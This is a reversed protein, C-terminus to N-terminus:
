DRRSLKRMAQAMLAPNMVQPATKAITSGARIGMGQVFPSSAAAYAAALPLHLLALGAEIGIKPIVYKSPFPKRFGENTAKAAMAKSYSDIAGGAKPFQTKRAENVANRIAKSVRDFQSNKYVDGKKLAKYYGQLESDIEGVIKDAENFDLKGRGNDARALWDTVMKKENPLMASLIKTEAGQPTYLNLDRGLNTIKPTTTVMANADNILPKVNAEMEQGASAIKKGVAKKSLVSPDDIALRINKEPMGSLGSMVKSAGSKLTNVVPKIIPKTADIVGKIAKDGFAGGPTYKSASALLGGTAAIPEPVGAGRFIDGFEAPREGKLTKFIDSPIQAISKGRTKVANQLGIGIDAPVGEAIEMGGSLARLSEPIMKRGGFPTLNVPNIPNNPDISSHRKSILSEVDDSPQEEDLFRGKYSKQPEDLFRGM